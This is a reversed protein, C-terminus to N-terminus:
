PLAVMCRSAGFGITGDVFSEYNSNLTGPVGGIAQNVPANSVPGRVYFVRSGNLMQTTQAPVFEPLMSCCSDVSVPADSLWHAILDVNSYNTAAPTALIQAWAAKSILRYSYNIPGPDRVTLATKTLCRNSSLSYPDNRIGDTLEKEVVLRQSHFYWHNPPPVFVRIPASLNSASLYEGALLSNFRAPTGDVFRSDQRIAVARFYYFQGPNLGSSIIALQLDSPTYDRIDVFTTIGLEYPKSLTTATTSILVRTGVVAGVSANAPTFKPLTFSVERTDLSQVSGYNGSSVTADPEITGKVHVWISATASRATSFYWIQASTREMDLGNTPNIKKNLYSFDVNFQVTLYCRRTTFKNFGKQSAVVANFEDDGFLCGKSAMIRLQIPQNGGGPYSRNFIPIYEEGGIPVYDINPPLYDTPVPISPTFGYLRANQLYRHYALLLSAKTEESNTVTIRRFTGSPTNDNFHIERLSNTLAITGFDLRFSPVTTPSSSSPRIQEPVRDSAVSQITLLGPARAMLNIGINQNMFRSGGANYVLTMVFNQSTDSLVPTYRFIVRCSAGPMISSNSLCNAPNSGGSPVAFSSPLARLATDTVSNRFLVQFNSITVSSTNTFVLEKQAYIEGGRIGDFTLTAQTNFNLWSLPQTVLSGSPNATPPLGGAQPTVTYDRSQMGITGMTGSGRVEAVVLVRQRVERLGVSSINSPRPPSAPHFDLPNTKAGTRYTYDLVMRHEGPTTSNFRFSLPTVDSGGNVGLPNSPSVTPRTVSTFGTSATTPRDVDPNLQLDTVRGRAQGFNRIGLTITQQPLGQPFSGLFLIYDFNGRESWAPLPPQSIATVGELVRRSDDGQLFPSNQGVEVPLRFFSTLPGYFWQAPILRATHGTSSSIPYTFERRYLTATLSPTFNYLQLKAENLQNLRVTYPTLTSRNGYSSTAGGSTDGDYYQVIIDQYAVSGHAANCLPRMLFASSESGSFLRTGEELNTLGGSLGLNSAPPFSSNCITSNLVRSQDRIKLQLGLVCTKDAPLPQFVAPPSASLRDSPLTNVNVTGTPFDFINRCDFDAGLSSPNSVPVVSVNTNPAPPNNLRMYTIPGTGTNQFYLFTNYTDGHVLHSPNAGGPHIVAPVNSINNRLDESINRMLGRRVLRAKLRVQTTVATMDPPGDYNGDTYLSGSAFSVSFSKFRSGDTDTGDFMNEEERDSSSQPPVPPLGIPAFGGVTLTCTGGPQVVSCTTSDVRVDNFYYPIHKGLSTATSSIPIPPTSGDRFQLNTAAVSGMNRFTLLMPRSSIGLSSQLALRGLDVVFPATTSILFGQSGLNVTTLVLRAPANSKASLDFLKQTQLTEISKWMSDFYVEMRLNQFETTKNTVFTISPQFNVEFVCGDAVPILKSIGGGPALCSDKDKVTFPLTSLGVAAGAMNKCELVTMGVAARCRAIHSGGSDRFDIGRINGARFGVNSVRFTRVDRNGSVVPNDFNVVAVQSKFRAEIDTSVSRFFGNLAGPSGKSDRLFTFNVSSRYNIEKLVPNPTGTGDANKPKYTIEVTCKAGPLLNKPCNNVMEYAGGANSPCTPTLVPTCSQLMSVTLNKAVLGGGNIVELIETYTNEENREVIPINTPGILQGFTYQTKDNTFALSAPMGALIDLQAVHIEEQVFNKFKLTLIEQHIRQERPAFQLNITCGKKSDLVPGCTGDNGPYAIEGAPSPVYNLTPATSGAASLELSLNTYPYETDNYVTVKIRRAEDTLLHEGLDLTKGSGDQGDISFLIPAFLGATQIKVGSENPNCSIVLCLLLLLYRKM